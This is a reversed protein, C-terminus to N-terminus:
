KKLKYRVYFLIVLIVLIVCVVSIGVWVWQNNVADERSPQADPDLDDKKDEIITVSATNSDTIKYNINGSFDEILVLYYYTGPEAPLTDTYNFGLASDIPELASVNSIPETSRYIILRSDSEPTYWSLIVKTEQEPNQAAM